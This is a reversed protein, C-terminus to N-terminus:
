GKQFFNNLDDICRAKRCEYMEKFEQTEKNLNFLLRCASIGNDEVFTFMKMLEVIDEATFTGITLLKGSTSYISCWTCKILKEKTMKEMYDANHLKSHIM